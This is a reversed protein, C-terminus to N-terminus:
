FAGSAYQPDALQSRRRKPKSIQQQERRVDWKKLIDMMSISKPVKLADCLSGKEYGTNYILCAQAVAFDVIAKSVSVVKPCLIWIRSHLSENPNQTKGKLCRSLLSDDSLRKYVSHLEKYQEENVTLRLKMVSHSPKRIPSENRKDAKKRIDEIVAKKWFCWSESCWNHKPHADTSTLHM